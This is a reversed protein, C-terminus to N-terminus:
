TTSSRPRRPRSTSSPPSAPRRADRGAPDEADDRRPLDGGHVHARPQGDAAGARRRGQGRRHDAHRLAATRGELRLRRRRLAVAGRGADAALGFAQAIGARATRVSQSPMWVTLQEGRWHATAAFLEMPNHHQFPTTWTEDVVAAAAAIGAKLDGKSVINDEKKGRPSPHPRTWRSAPPPRRYTARVLSAGRRAAAANEAVVYAVPQGAYRIETGTMPWFSATGPGGAYFGKPTEYKPMTEHTYVAVVGPEALAQRIDISTLGGRAITSVVLEGHFMGAPMFDAAYRAEGSVKRPAEYRTM